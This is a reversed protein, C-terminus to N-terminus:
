PSIVTVAVLFPDCEKGASLVDLSTIEKEPHPNTWALDFLRIMLGPRVHRAAADNQGTWAPKARDIRRGPDRHLWNTIDRAYVLPVQENSGDAYHVVYAGILTDEANLGGQTSHLFHLTRGRARVKIGKVSQPLDPRSRGQVHIMKEGIRFYTEGLKHIGRPLRNLDNGNGDPGDALYDTGQTGLDVFTLRGRLEPPIPEDQASVARDNAQVDVDPQLTIEVRDRGAPITEFQFAGRRRQLYIELERRPVDALEFMGDRDTAVSEAAGSVGVRIGAPVRGQSDRVRGIVTRTDPAPAKVPVDGDGRGYIDRTVTREVSAPPREEAKGAAPEDGAAVAKKAVDAVVAKAKEVPQPGAAKMAEMMPNRVPRIWRILRVPEVEGREPVMVDRHAVRQNQSGDALYLYQEGPPVHFTYRGQDDTKGMLVIAGSRPRASGHCGVPIGPVPQGTIRDVVMVRLPRGEMVTMDATSDAGARVRVGEEARATADARGFIGLLVVNYVGPELGSIVFRGQDDSRALGWGGLVRDHREILEAGLGAGAVPQGSAIDIV